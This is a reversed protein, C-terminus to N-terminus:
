VRERCSARGIKENYDERLAREKETMTYRKTLKDLKEGAAIVAGTLQSAEFGFKKVFNNISKEYLTVLDILGQDVLSERNNIILGDSTMTTGTLLEELGTLGQEQAIEELTSIQEKILEWEASQGRRAPNNFIENEIFNRQEIGARTTEQLKDISSFAKSM